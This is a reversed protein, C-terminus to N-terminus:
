FIARRVVERRGRQCLGGDHLKALSSASWCFGYRCLDLPSLLRRRTSLRREHIQAYPTTELNVQPVVLCTSPMPCVRHSREKSVDPRAKQANHCSTHIQSRQTSCVAHISAKAHKTDDKHITPATADNQSTVASIFQAYAASSTRITYPTVMKYEKRMLCLCVTMVSLVSANQRNRM